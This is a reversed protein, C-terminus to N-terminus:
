TYNVSDFNIGPFRISLFARVLDEIQKWTAPHNDFSFEDMLQKTEIEPKQYNKGESPTKQLAVLKSKLFKAAAIYFNLTQLESHVLITCYKEEPVLLPTIEAEKIGNGNQSNGRPKCHNCQYGSKVKNLATIMSELALIYKNAAATSSQSATVSAAVLSSSKYFADFYEEDDPEDDEDVDYDEENFEEECDDFFQTLGTNMSDDREKSEFNATDEQRVDDHDYFIEMMKVFPIYSYSKPGRQLKVLPKDYKLNVELIDNCSGDPEMNNAICFGYRGLLAANGKAGYTMHLEKGYPLWKVSTVRVGGLNQNKCEKNFKPRKAQAEEIPTSNERSRGKHDTEKKEYREYRIDATSDHKLQFTEISQNGSGRDILANKSDFIIAVDDKADNSACADSVCVGRVHNFLDLLPIMADLGDRGLGSFGRSSLAAMMDSYSQLSPFGSREKGTLPIKEWAAKVLDYEKLLGIQEKLIRPYLSTGGLRKQLISQPWQRPLSPLYNSAIKADDNAPEKIKFNCAASKSARPLTALYPRYFSKYLSEQDRPSDKEKQDDTNDNQNASQSEQLHALFIALIVDQTDHYLIQKSSDTGDAEEPLNENDPPKSESNENANAVLSHVAGFLSKGFQTKEVSHLSLLCADPIELLIAGAEIGGENDITVDNKALCSNREHRLSSGSSLTDVGLFVRRSSEDYRLLPHVFGGNREIWSKADEWVRNTNRLTEASM